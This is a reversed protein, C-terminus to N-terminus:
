IKDVLAAADVGTYSASLFEPFGVLRLRKANTQTFADQRAEPQAVLPPIGNDSAL